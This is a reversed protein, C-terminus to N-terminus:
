STHVACFVQLMIYNKTNPDQSIGFMELINGQYTRTKTSYKKIENLFKDPINQSNDLCKLAVEENYKREYKYEEENYILPGDNWIASYVTSFGGQRHNEIQSSDINKLLETIDQSDHVMFKIIMVMVIVILQTINWLSM